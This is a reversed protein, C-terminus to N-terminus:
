RLRGERGARGLRDFYRYAHRSMETLVQEGAQEDALYSMMVTILYPRHALAVFGVETRVGSLGGPKAAVPVDAPVGARLPTAGPRRMIELAAERSAASLGQGTRLADMVRTLDEASSLNEAGAAAAAVDMMKRELSFTTAGLSAMRENVAAMGLLDMLVNTAVNDSLLIMLVAHDRPSLAPTGLQQLVGAGGVKQTADLPVREDLAV